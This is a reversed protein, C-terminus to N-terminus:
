SVFYSLCEYKSESDLDVHELELNMAADPKGPLISVVRIQSPGSLNQYVFPSLEMTEDSQHGRSKQDQHGLSREMM